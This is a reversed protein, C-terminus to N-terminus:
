RTSLGSVMIVHIGFDTVVYGLEGYSHMEGNTYYSNPMFANGISNSPNFEMGPYQINPGGFLRRALRDFEPVMLSDGLPILYGKWDDSNGFMGPDTNYRNIYEWFTNIAKTGSLSRLVISLEEYVGGTGWFPRQEGTDRNTVVLTKAWEYRHESIESSDSVLDFHEDSFGFLIHKVYFGDVNINIVTERTGCGVLFMIPTVVIFILAFCILFRKMGLTYWM